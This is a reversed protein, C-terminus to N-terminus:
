LALAEIREIDHEEPQFSPDQEMRMLIKRANRKLRKRKTYVGERTLGYKKMVQEVPLKLLDTLAQGTWRIDSM